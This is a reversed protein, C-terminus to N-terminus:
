NTNLTGVYKCVGKNITTNFNSGGRNINKGANIGWWEVNAENPNLQSGWNYYCLIISYTGPRRLMQSDVTIREEGVGAWPQNGNAGWSDYDLNAGWSSSHKDWYVIGNSNQLDYINSIVYSSDHQIETGNAQEQDFLYLDIDAYKKNWKAYISIGSDNGLFYNYANDLLNNAMATSLGNDFNYDRNEIINANYAAKAYKDYWQGASYSYTIYNPNDLPVPIARTIMIIFEAFTVNQTPNFSDNSGSVIGKNYATVIYDYNNTSTSVDNPVNISTGFLTQNFGNNQTSINFKDLILKLADARTLETETTEPSHDSLYDEPNRWHDPMTTDTTRGWAQFITATTAGVALGFHLHVDNYTKLHGIVDGARVTEETTDENYKSTIGDCSMGDPATHGYVATFNEGTSTTYEVLVVSLNYNDPDGINCHLKRGIITGDAIAYVEDGEDVHGMGIDVGTHRSGSTERYTESDYNCCTDTTMDTSSLPTEWGTNDFGDVDIDIYAYSNSTLSGLLLLTTILTKM